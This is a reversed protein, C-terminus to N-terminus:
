GWEGGKEYFYTAANSPANQLRITAFYKRIDNQEELESTKISHIVKVGRAIVEIPSMPMGIWNVALINPPGDSLYFGAAYTCLGFLVDDTLSSFRLADLRHLGMECWRDILPRMMFAAGGTVTYGAQYGNRRARWYLRKLALSCALRAPKKLLQRRSRHISMEYRLKEGVKYMDSAKKTGDGRESFAGFIGARPQQTSAALIDRHPSPGTVLADTDLRLVVDYDYRERLAALARVQEVWFPGRVTQPVDTFPYVESRPLYFREHQGTDLNSHLGDDTNDIICVAAEDHPLNHLVSDVTDQVFQFPM